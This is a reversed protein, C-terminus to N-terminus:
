TQTLVGQIVSLVNPMQPREFLIFNETQVPIKLKSCDAFLRIENLHNRVYISSTLIKAGGHRSILHLEKKLAANQEIRNKEFDSVILVEFLDEESLFAKKQKELWPTTKNKSRIFALVEIDSVSLYHEVSSLAQETEIVAKVLFRMPFNFLQVKPNLYLREYMFYRAVLLSECAQVGKSDIMLTPMQNLPDCDIVLSMILQQHDFLGYSLGTGQADRMLYDMRDAGFFDGSIIESLIKEISSFQHMEVYQHYKKEGVAVKKLLGHADVGLQQGQKILPDIMEVLPPYDLIKLTWAEHCKKEFILEEATHSFPLHGLDHSLAALRLISRYFQTEEISHVLSNQSYDHFLHDFIKTALHMVGLSHEFRTHRAGPFVRYAAGLQHISQLRLFWPTKLWDAELRSLAIFGHISDYVTKM